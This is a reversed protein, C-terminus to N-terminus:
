TSFVMGPRRCGVGGGTSSTQKVRVYGPMELWAVSPLRLKPCCWIGTPWATWQKFINTLVTDTQPLESRHPRNRWGTLLAQPFIDVLTALHWHAPWFPAAKEINIMLVSSSSCGHWDTVYLDWLQDGALLIADEIWPLSNMCHLNTEMQLYHTMRLISHHRFNGSQETNMKLNFTLAHHWDKRKSAETMYAQGPAM